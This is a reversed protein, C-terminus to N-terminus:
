WGKQGKALSNFLPRILGVASTGCKREADLKAKLTKPFQINLREM